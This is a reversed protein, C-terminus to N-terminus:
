RKAMVVKDLGLSYQEHKSSNFVSSLWSVQLKGSRGTDIEGLEVEPMSVGDPSAEGISVSICVGFIEWLPCLQPGSWPVVEIALPEVVGVAPSSDFFALGKRPRTWTGKVPNRLPRCGEESWSESSLVLKPRRFSSISTSSSSLFVMCPIEASSQDIM